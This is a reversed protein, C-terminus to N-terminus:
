RLAKIAARVVEPSTNVASEPPYVHGANPKVVVTAGPEFMSSVGGLHKLAEEVMADANGGKVISVISKNM